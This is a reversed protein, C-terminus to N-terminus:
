IAVATAIGRIKETGKDVQVRRAEIIGVLVLNSVEEVGEKGEGRSTNLSM